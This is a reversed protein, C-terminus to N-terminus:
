ENLQKAYELTPLDNDIGVATTDESNKIWECCLKATGCFDERLYLRRHGYRQRFVQRLFDAAEEPSNVSYEYLQFSNWRGTNVIQPSSPSELDNKEGEDM